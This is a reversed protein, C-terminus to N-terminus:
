KVDIKSLIELLEEYISDIVKKIKEKDTEDLKLIINKDISNLAELSKKTQSLIQNKICLVNTKSLFKETIHLFSEDLDENSRIIGIENSSIVDFKSIIGCVKAVVSTQEEIFENSYQGKLIKSIDRMERTKDRNKQTIFRCFFIQKIQERRDDDSVSKLAKWLEKIPDVIDLLRVLHFSKPANIFELFEVIIEIKEVENQIEVEKLHVSNAYEKITLIKNEIIDQYIGVLRDIPNYDVKEDVGHQLSLELIKIEKEYNEYDHDLIIAKFYQTKGTKNQINRLCTFRRNGDIIRGDSLVVGAVLQGVSEINKQTKKISNSNSKIILEQMILNFKEKDSLDFDNIKKSNKYEYSYTAIRDNKDNYYLNDLKIKYVKEIKTLNDIVLNKTEKTLIVSKNEYELLNM